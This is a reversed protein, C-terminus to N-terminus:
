FGYRLMRNKMSVPLRGRGRAIWIVMKGAMEADM